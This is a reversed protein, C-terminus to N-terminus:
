AVQSKSSEAHLRLLREVALRQRQDGIQPMLERWQKCLHKPIGPLQELDRTLDRRPFCQQHEFFSEWGAQLQLQTRLCKECYGCNLDDRSQNTWCVRLSKLVTSHHAIARAKALRSVDAGHTQFAIQASSWLSDLSAHSGHPGDVDTSAILISQFISSLLHGVAALAAGHTIPWGVSRFLKHERLNTRITVVPLGLEASVIAQLNSVMKLRKVDQRPIDFGEVFILGDVSSASQLLSYFSDVGATFFLGTRGTSKNLASDSALRPRRDSNQTGASVPVRGFQWWNSALEQIQELNERWVSCCPARLEVPLRSHMAPILFASAFAEVAGGLPTTSEFFVSQGAITAAVRFWGDSMRCGTVPGITLRSPRFISFM